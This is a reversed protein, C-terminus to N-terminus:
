KVEAWFRQEVFIDYAKQCHDQIAKHLLEKRCSNKYCLGQAEGTIERVFLTQKNSDMVTWKVKIMAKEDQTSGVPVNIDFYLLEPIFVAKINQSEFDLDLSSLSVVENFATKLVTDVGNCVTEDVQIDGSAATAALPSFLFLGVSGTGKTSYKLNNISPDIYYGVKIPIKKDDKPSLTVNPSTKMACASLFISFVFFSTFTISLMNKLKM